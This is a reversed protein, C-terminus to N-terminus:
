FIMIIILLMKNMKTRKEDDKSREIHDRTHQGPLYYDVTSSKLNNMTQSIRYYCAQFLKFLEICCACIQEWRNQLRQIHDVCCIHLFFFGLVHMRKFSFWKFHFIVKKPRFCVFFITLHIIAKQKIRNIVPVVINCRKLVVFFSSLFDNIKRQFFNDKAM